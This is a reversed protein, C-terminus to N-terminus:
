HRTSLSTEGEVRNAVGMMVTLSDYGNHLMALLDEGLVCKGEGKEGM